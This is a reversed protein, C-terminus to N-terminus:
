IRWLEPNVKIVSSRRNLEIRMIYGRAELEDLHKNFVEIYKFSGKAIQHWKSVTEGDAFVKTKILDLIRLQEKVDNMEDSISFTSLLDDHMFQLWQWGLELGENTVALEKGQHFLFEALYGFRAIMGEHKYLFSGLVTSAPRAAREQIDIKMQEYVDHADERIHVIRDSLAFAQEFVDFAKKHKNFNLAKRKKIEVKGFSIPPFRQMFGDNSDTRPNHLDAIITDYVDPQCATLISGFCKEIRDTGRLITKTTFSKDGDIMRMFFNHADENGKKKKTARIQNFEDLVLFMGNKQGNSADIIMKQITGLESMWETQVKNELLGNLEDQLKYIEKSIAKSEDVENNANHRNRQKDLEEIRKNLAKEEDLFDRSNSSELRSQIIRAQHTALKIIDSKKSGSPALIMVTMNPRVFWPDEPYPQIVIKGQLCAGLTTLMSFFLVHHPTGWCNHADCIFDRWVPPIADIDFIAEKSGKHELTLPRIDKFSFNDISVEIASSEEFSIEKDKHFSSLIENVFRTCNIERSDGAKIEKHKKNFNYDFFSNKPFLMLDHTLTDSIIKSLSIYRANHAVQLGIFSKLDNFRGDAMGNEDYQVNVPLNANLAKTSSSGILAKLNIIQTHAILPLSDIGKVSLLTCGEDVWHYHYDKENERSHLSPPIVVYKNEYFVEVFGGSLVPFRYMAQPSKDETKFFFSCGKRGYKNVHSPVAKLIRNIIEDDNSDIDVCSLGPNEKTILVALGTVARIKNKFMDEIRDYIDYDDTLQTLTMWGNIAPIKENVPITVIGISAYAYM